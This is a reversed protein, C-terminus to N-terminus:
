SCDTTSVVEQLTVGASPYNAVLHLTSGTHAAEIRLEEPPGAARQFVCYGVNESPRHLGATVLEDLSSPLLGHVSRYAEAATLVNRVDSRVAATKTREKVGSFGAMALSALVGIIITVLMLELLTFGERNRM